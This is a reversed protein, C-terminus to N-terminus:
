SAMKRILTTHIVASSITKNETITSTISPPYYMHCLINQQSLVKVSQGGQGEGPLLIGLHTLGEALKGMDGPLEGGQQLTQHTVPRVIHTSIAQESKKVVSLWVVRYATPTPSHSLKHMDSSQGRSQCIDLIFMYMCMLVCACIYIHLAFQSCPQSVKLWCFM